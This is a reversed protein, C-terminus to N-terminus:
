SYPRLAAVAMMSGDPSFTVRSPIFLDTRIKRVAGSAVNVARIDTALGRTVQYVIESGDPTWAPLGAGGEHTTLARTEGTKMDRAWLEMTGSKDSVFAVRSGDPSWTPDYEVYPDNTLRTLVGDKWTFLDGLAAFVITTGDP